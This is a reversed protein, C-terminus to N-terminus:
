RPLFRRTDLDADLTIRHLQLIATNVGGAFKNEKRHVLAGDVFEFDSYETRFRMETGNVALTGVVKEIRWTDMNVLYDARLGNETLSLACNRGELILTLSEIKDRLTLPSYLRMM